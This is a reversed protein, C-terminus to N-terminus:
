KIEIAWAGIKKITATGYGIGDVLVGSISAKHKKLKGNEIAYVTFSGKFSGDKSKYTLKLGSINAIGAGKKGETISLVGKKYAVKAAKVGNAVVWKTKSQSVSEGDPLAPKGNYMVIGEIDSIIADDIYFKADSKLTGAKGIIAGDLGVVEAEGGDLPLWITFALKVTKKSYIVPICIMDEGILAQAKASFKEGGITGKVTVKGKKAITVSLTGGGTIMNMAGLWPALLEDATAKESKDKSSFLNRVGSIEYNGFAGKIEDMNFTLSLVRGDKTEGIFAGAAANMQGKISLKKEGAIQVTVTVKAEGKKPKAVKAQMTGVVVDGNMVYGDYVSAADPIVLSSEDDFDDDIAPEYNEITKFVPRVIVRKIAEDEANIGDYIAKTVTFTLTPSDITADEPKECNIFEWHDLEEGENPYCVLKAKQGFPVVGMGTVFGRFNAMRVDDAVTIEERYWAETALCETENVSSPRFWIGNAIIEGGYNGITLSGAKKADLVIWFPENMWYNNPSGITRFTGGYAAGSILLKDAQFDWSSSSDYMTEIKIYLEGSSPVQFTLAGFRGDDEDTELRYPVRGVGDGVGVGDWLGFFPNFSMDGPLPSYMTIGLSFVNSLTFRTTKPLENDPRITIIPTILNTGKIGVTFTKPSFFGDQGIRVNALSVLIWQRNDIIKGDPWVSRPFEIELRKSISEYYCEDDEDDIEFNYEGIHFKSAFEADTLVTAKLRDASMATGLTIVPEIKEGGCGTVPICINDHQDVGYKFVWPVVDYGVHIHSVYDEMEVYHWDRGDIKVSGESYAYNNALGIQMEAKGVQPLVMAAIAAVCLTMLQKIM